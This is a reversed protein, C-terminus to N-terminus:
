GMSRAPGSTVRPTKATRSSGSGASQEPTAGYKRAVHGAIDEGEPPMDPNLEFPHFRIDAEVQGDLLRLAEDLGGLGIIPRRLEWLKSPQLELGVLFLMVISVFFLLNAPVSFGLLHALWTLIGPFISLILSVVGAFLWILAHREKFRELRLMNIIIVLVAISTIISFPYIVSETM